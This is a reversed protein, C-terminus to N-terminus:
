RLPRLLYDIVDLQGCLLENGTQGTKNMWQLEMPSLRYHCSDPREKNWYIQVMRPPIEYDEALHDGTDLFVKDPRYTIEQIGWWAGKFVLPILVLATIILVVPRSNERSLMWDLLLSMGLACFLMAVFMDPFSDFDIFMLQISFWTGGALIWWSKAWDKRQIVPILSGAFGLLIPPIGWMGLFTFIRSLRDYFTQNEPLSFPVLVVEVLMPEFVRWNFIPILIILSGIMLGLLTQGPHRYKSQTVSLGMTFIVFITGPLWFFASAAALVGSLFASRQKLQLYVGALGCLMMLYKPHFGRAALTYFGPLTLLVLSGIVSSLKNRTIEYSILYNIVLIGVVAAGTFLVSLFHILLMNGQSIVALILTIEFVLPPKPDWFDLYPRAGQTMLWGAHEFLAADETIKPPHFYIFNIVIAMGVLFIGTGVLIWTLPLRELKGPLKLVTDEFRLFVVATLLFFFGMAASKLRFSDIQIATIQSSQYYLSFNSEVFETSALLSISLWIMGFLLLISQIKRTKM